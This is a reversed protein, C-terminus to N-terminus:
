LSYYFAEKDKHISIRPTCLVANKSLIRMKSQEADILTILNAKQKIPGHADLDFNDSDEDDGYNQKVKNYHPEFQMAFESLSMKEFDYDDHKWPRYEYRDFMQMCYDNTELNVVRYRKEPKYTSLYVKRRSSEFFKLNCLRFACECASVQRQNLMAMCIKFLKRSVDTEKKRIKSIADRLSKELMTPESKGIYKAIYYALAIASGCPQIDMNAQWLRLLGPSYNNVCEEGPERKLVCIRGGNQIIENSELALFKTKSSLPRPFGFRCFTKHKRCTESHRHMQLSKVLNKLEEDEQPIACSIVSEVKAIYEPDDQSKYGDVWLIMHLHPSGRNQFEVRWWYDKVEGQFIEKNTKIYKMLANVRLMFHRSVDVPYKEVLVQRENISLSDPETDPRGDAFLLVRIMDPWHLDNCSFSCFYTPVGLTAIQALLQNLATTWYAGSGRLNKVYLHIDQVMANNQKVKKGSVVINSKARLYEYMSLAYFLYDTKQFRPDEGMLRYQFYDLPTIRVPRSNNLGNIGYPLLGIWSLEEAKLEHNQNVINNGTKRRLTKM